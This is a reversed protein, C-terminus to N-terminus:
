IKTQQCEEASGNSEKVHATPQHKIWCKMMNGLRKQLALRKMINQTQTLDDRCMKTPHKSGDQSWITDFLKYLTWYLELEWGGDFEFSASAEEASLEWWWTLPMGSLPQNLGKIIDLLLQCKWSWSRRIQTACCRAGM